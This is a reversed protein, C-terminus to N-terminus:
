SAGEQSAPEREPDIANHITEEALFLLGFAFFYLPPVTFFVWLGLAIPLAPADLGLVIGVSMLVTVLAGVSFWGLFGKANRTLSRHNFHEGM